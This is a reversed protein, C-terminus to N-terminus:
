AAADDQLPWVGAHRMWFVRAAIRAFLLKDRRRLLLEDVIVRLWAPDESELRVAFLRRAAFAAQWGPDGPGHGAGCRSASAFVLADSENDVRFDIRM